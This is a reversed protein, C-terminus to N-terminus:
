AGIAPYQLGARAGDLIIAEDDGRAPAEDLLQGADLVRNGGALPDGGGLADAIAEPLHCPTDDGQPEGTVRQLGLSHPPPGM